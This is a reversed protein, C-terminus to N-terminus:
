QNAIMVFVSRVALKALRAMLLSNPPDPTSKDQVLLKSWALADERRLEPIETRASLLLVAAIVLERQTASFNGTDISRLEAMADGLEHEDFSWHAKAPLSDVDFGSASYFAFAPDETDDSEHCEIGLAHAVIEKSEKDLRKTAAVRELLESRMAVFAADNECEKMSRHQKAIRLLDVISVAAGFVDSHERADNEYESVRSLHRCRFWRTTNTQCDFLCEISSNGYDILEVRDTTLLRDPNVLINSSKVDGHIIGVRHLESVRRFLSEVDDADFVRPRELLPMYIVNFFTETDKINAAGLHYPPRDQNFHRVVAAVMAERVLTINNAHLRFFEKGEFIHNPVKICLRSGTVNFVSCNGGQGVLTAVAAGAAVDYSDLTAEDLADCEIVLPEGKDPKLEIMRVGPM